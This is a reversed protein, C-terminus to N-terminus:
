QQFLKKMYTEHPEVIVFKYNFSKGKMSEAIAKEKLAKGDFYDQWISRVPLNTKRIKNMATNFCLSFPTKFKQTRGERIFIKITEIFKISNAHEINIEYIGDDPM